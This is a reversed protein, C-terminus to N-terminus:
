LLYSFDGARDLFRRVRFFMNGENKISGLFENWTLWAIACVEPNKIGAPTPQSLKKQYLTNFKACVQDPEVNVHIFIVLNAQDYIVPCEQIDQGTIPQFLQLTEEMFERLAGNVVHSDTKYVMTGGFDTLEHYNADLGLGFYTVQQHITYLIVGARQPRVYTLNLAKIKTKIIQGLSPALGYIKEKKKSAERSYIKPETSNSIALETPALYSRYPKANKEVLPEVQAACDM